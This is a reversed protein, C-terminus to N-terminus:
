LIQKYDSDRVLRRLRNVARFVIISVSKSITSDIASIVLHGSAPHEM